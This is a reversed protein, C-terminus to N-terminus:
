DCGQQILKIKDKKQAFMRSIDQFFILAWAFSSSLQLQHKSSTNRGKLLITISM